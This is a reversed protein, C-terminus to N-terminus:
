KQIKVKKQEFGNETVEDLLFYFEGNIKKVRSKYKTEGNCVYISNSYYETWSNNNLSYISFTNWCSNFGQKIVILDKIGDGTVDQCPELSTLHPAGDYVLDPLSEDTFKIVTRCKNDICSIDDRLIPKILIATDIISNGNLDDVIFLNEIIENYRLETHETHKIIPLTKNSYRKLLQQPVSDLLGIENYFNIKEIAADQDEASLASLYLSHTFKKDELSHATKETLFNLVINAIFAIAAVWLPVTVPTFIKRITERM